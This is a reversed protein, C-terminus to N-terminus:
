REYNFKVNRMIYSNLGDGQKALTKMKEVHERGASRYSYRYVKATGFFKVDIYDLGISYAEVNSDHNINKYEIM